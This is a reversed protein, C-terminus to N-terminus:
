HAHDPPKPPIWGGKVNFRRPTFPEPVWYPSNAPVLMTAGATLRKTRVQWPKLANVSRHLGATRAMQMATDGDHLPGDRAIQIVVGRQTSYEMLFKIADVRENLTAIHLPTRGCWDRSNLDARAALLAKMKTIGVCGGCFAAKHLPTVGYKDKVEVNARAQILHLVDESCGHRVAYMLPTWEYPLARVELHKRWDIKLARREAIDARAAAVIEEARKQAACVRAETAEREAAKEKASKKKAKTRPTVKGEAAEEEEVVPPERATEILAKGEEEAARLLASLEEEDDEPTLLEVVRRREKTKGDGFGAAALHLPNPPRLEEKQALATRGPGRDILRSPGAPPAAASGGGERPSGPTPASFPRAALSIRRTATASSPPM